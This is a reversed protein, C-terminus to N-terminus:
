VYARSNGEIRLQQTQGNPLSFSGDVVADASGNTLFHFSDGTARDAEKTINLYSPFVVAGSALSLDGQIGSINGVLNDMMYENGSVRMHYPSGKLNVVGNANGWDLRSAIHGGWALVVQPAIAEIRM